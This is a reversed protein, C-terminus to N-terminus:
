IEGYKYRAACSGETSVMCPGVPTAPTCKKGFLPCQPPSIQGKLVLGCKCASKKKIIPLTLSFKKQSDFDKFKDRIKLGSKPIIGLGRWRADCPEFVKKLLSLAKPNGTEVVARPYANIVEPKKERFMKALSRLGLLIDVPEFGGVTAPLRYNAALFKFPSLGTITAVHGPLLFADMNHGPDDLLAALAPPVLKHMSFASFNSLKLQSAQMIVAATLPATTEFGAGLFVVEKHPNAKAIQAAELSSYVIRIDAGAAQAHKLSFGDAGPVRLLDGFTALIIEEKRALDLFIAIESDDTVCVPCGPGSLHIINAPLLSSLGSQYIATTHTGCVEMFRFTEGDLIQQIEQLLNKCYVPNNAAEQINRIVSTQM